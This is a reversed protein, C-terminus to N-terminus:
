HFGLKLTYLRSIEQLLVSTPLSLSTDRLRLEVRAIREASLSQRMALVNRVLKTFRQYILLYGDTAIIVLLEFGHVENKVVNQVPSSYSM